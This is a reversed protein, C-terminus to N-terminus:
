YIFNSVTDPAGLAFSVRFAFSLHHTLTCSATRFSFTGDQAMIPHPAGKYIKTEVNKGFNKLKDGYTIGEDRLIDLEAVGIWADPVKAFSEDPAYIPSNDWNKWDAENPLYHTRFWIM